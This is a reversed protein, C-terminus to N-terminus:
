DAKDVNSLTRQCQRSAADSILRTLSKYGFLGMGEYRIAFAHYKDEQRETSIISPRCLVNMNLM